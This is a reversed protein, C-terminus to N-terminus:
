TGGFYWEMEVEPISVIALRVQLSPISPIKIHWWYM